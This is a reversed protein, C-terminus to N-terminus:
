VDRREHSDQRKENDGSDLGLTNLLLDPIIFRRNGPARTEVAIGAQM